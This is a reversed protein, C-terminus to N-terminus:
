LMEKLPVNADALREPPIMAKDLVLKRGQVYDRTANVCIEPKVSLSVLLSSWIVEDAAARATKASLQWAPRPSNSATERRTSCISSALTTKTLESVLPALAYARSEATIFYLAM